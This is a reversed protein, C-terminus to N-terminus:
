QIADSPIFLKELDVIQIPESLNYYIIFDGIQKENWLIRREQLFNQLKEDLAPNRTTILAVKNSQDVVKTYIPYRDDRRTYRLDPHYPLRPSFIIEENTLFAM